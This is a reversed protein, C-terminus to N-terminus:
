AEIYVGIFVEDERVLRDTRLPQVKQIFQSMIDDARCFNFFHQRHGIIDHAKAVGVIFEPELVRRVNGCVWVCRSSLQM